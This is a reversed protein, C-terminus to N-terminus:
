RRRSTAWWRCRCQKHNRSKSGSRSKFFFCKVDTRRANSFICVARTHLGHQSRDILSSSSSSFLRTNETTCRELACDGLLGVSWGNPTPGSGVLDIWERADWGDVGKTTTTTTTTTTARGIRIVRIVCVGANEDDADEDADCGDKMACGLPSM